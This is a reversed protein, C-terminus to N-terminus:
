VNQVIGIYKSDEYVDCGLLDHFYYGGNPLEPLNALPLYIKSKVLESASEITDVDEFKVLAKNGNVQITDIFFPILKGERLLFVSELEKYDDPSDVDLMISVEGKLAHTKIVEGLQYCDDLKM